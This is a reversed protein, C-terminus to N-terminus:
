APYWHKDEICGRLYLTQGTHQALQLTSTNRYTRSRTLGGSGNEGDFSSFLLAIAFRLIPNNITQHDARVRAGQGLYEAGLPAHRAAVRRGERVRHPAEEVVRPLTAFLAEPQRFERDERPPAAALARFRLTGRPM